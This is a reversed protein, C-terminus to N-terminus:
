EVLIRSPAHDTLVLSDSERSANVGYGNPLKNSIEPILDSVNVQM